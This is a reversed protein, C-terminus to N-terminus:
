ISHVFYTNQLTGASLKSVQVPRYSSSDELTHMPQSLVEFREIWFGETM